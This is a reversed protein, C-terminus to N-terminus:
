TCEDEWVREYNGFLEVHTMKRKQLARDALDEYVIYGDLDEYCVHILQKTNEHKFLCNYIKKVKFSEFECKTAHNGM